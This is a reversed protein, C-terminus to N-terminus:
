LEKIYQVEFPKYGLRKYFKDLREQMSNCMLGMVVAEAGRDKALKEFAHMLMKGHSRHAKKVYWIVEQVAPKRNTLNNVLFGAIVGVPVGDVILFYAIDKCVEIMEDLRANDVTLGYEGLSEKSFEACLERLPELYSPHWGDIRIDIESMTVM